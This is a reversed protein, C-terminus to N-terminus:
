KKEDRETFSSDDEDDHRNHHNSPRGYPLAVRSGADREVDVHKHVEIGTMTSGTSKVQSLAFTDVGHHKSVSLGRGRSLGSRGTGGVTNVQHGSPVPTKSAEGSFDDYMLFVHRFVTTAAIVSVVLTFPVAIINMIPNLSMGALTLQVLNSTFAAAFYGIGDLLLLAGIGGHERSRWLKHTALCLVTFDVTMTYGWVGILLPVPSTQEIQCVKRQPNWVSHSYRMTQGWLILQVACLGLLPFTIYKKQHWVATTRLALIMTSTCTGIMDTIKSMWVVTDCNIESIANLNVCYAYIHILM